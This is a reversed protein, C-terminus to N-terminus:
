GQLNVKYAKKSIRKGNNTTAYKQCSSITMRVDRLRTGYIVAHIKRLFNHGPPTFRWYVEIAYLCRAQNVVDSRFDTTVTRSRLLSRESNTQRFSLLTEVVVKRVDNLSYDGHKREVAAHIIKIFDREM